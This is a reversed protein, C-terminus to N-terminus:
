SGFYRIPTKKLIGLFEKESSLRTNQLGLVLVVAEGQDGVDVAVESSGQDVGGGGDTM